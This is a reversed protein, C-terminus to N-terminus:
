PILELKEIKDSIQLQHVVDLGSVVKAFITYRGDLHPVRNHTIFWQCSETDKGASALGVTGEEYHLDAFESRITYDTGGWGDGRPCGGQAVFNPVVRHFHKGNYFGQKVLEAFNAVSGPAEEVFLQLTIDGKSTKLLAKQDTKLTQVLEWNIPHSTPNQPATPVPKQEFFALTKQLEIYTEVDRPLQIKSQATKLFDYNQFTQRYNLNPERLLTAAAGVLAVDGSAIARKLTENFSPKLKEPFAPLKRMNSLAEIGYTSIVPNQQAAFTEKELFYYSNPDNSLAHLLAGKEYINSTQAYRNMIEARLKEPNKATKLAAGLLLARTRWDTQKNAADLLVLNEEPIKSSIMEAATLTVNPNKDSLAEFLIDQTSVFDFSNLARLASLRVRYDPDKQAISGLTEVTESTKTKGLATAAAARVAPAADTLAAAQIFKFHPTLDAKGSRALTQSAAMRIERTQATALFRATKALAAEPLPRRLVVRYFGWMHGAQLVTDPSFFNNLFKIGDATAVKGLAELMEARAPKETERGIASLLPYQATSDMSQGLAYAAKQRVEAIPDSLLPTLQPISNKDQVSAFALAAAARYKPNPDQLYPLLKPANREDQYTYIQRLNKDQFQNSIKSQSVPKQCAFALFLLVFGAYKKM